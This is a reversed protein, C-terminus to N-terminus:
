NYNKIKKLSFDLLSKIQHKDFVISGVFFCSVVFVLFCFCVFEGWSSCDIAFPLFYYVLLLCGSCVFNKLIDKVFPVKKLKFLKKTMIPFFITAVLNLVSTTGVIVYAGDINSRLLLLMSIINVVGCGITLISVVKMKTTLTAVYYLPVVAMTFVNGLIIIVSINFIKNADQGPLWLHLFPIGMFLFSAFFVNGIFICSTISMNLLGLVEKINNHSYAELQKPQFVVSVASVITYMILGLQSAVSIQGMVINSLFKNTILLDVGSGLTGGLYNISNYIGVSVLKKINRFHATKVDFTIEPLLKRVFVGNSITIFITVLLSIFGVYYIKIKFFYLTSIILFAYLLKFVFNIKSSIELKNQIFAASSLVSSIIGIFYNVLVFAFLLKVDFCLENPINIVRELHIIMFFSPISVLLGLVINAVIVSNFYSNAEIYEENHYHVAIYRASFSNIGVTIINIYSVLTNGLVIFGYSEIGVSNTVLPTILFNVVYGLAGSLVNWLFNRILQKATKKEIKAKM